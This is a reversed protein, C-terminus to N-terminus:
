SLTGENLADLHAAIRERLLELQDRTVHVDTTGAIRGEADVSTVFCITGVYGAKRLSGLGANGIVIPFGKQTVRTDFM